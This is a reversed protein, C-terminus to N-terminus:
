KNGARRRMGAMKKLTLLRRTPVPGDGEEVMRSLEFFCMNYGGKGRRMTASDVLYLGDYRYGRAPAYYSDKNKGRIVRVPRRTEFSVHLSKNRPDDLSQDAIQQQSSTLPLTKDLVSRRVGSADQGGSVIRNGEDKNDEYGGAICISFAGGDKSSDGHIGAQSQAHVGAKVLEDRNKFTAGFQVGPIHGYIRSDSIM